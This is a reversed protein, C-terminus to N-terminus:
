VPTVCITASRKERMRRKKEGPTCLHCYACHIGNSCGKKYLFACPRCGASYHGESGVTPLAATGLQPGPVADALRLLPAHSPPPGVTPSPMEAGFVPAEAPPLVSPQQMHAGLIPAQAPPPSVALSQMQTALIPPQLPPPPVALIPARTNLRPAATNLLPPQSPPPPLLSITAGLTPAHMPPPSIVSPAKAGLFFFSQIPSNQTPSSVALAAQVSFVPPREPPPPLSQMPSKEPPSSVALAAAVNFVPPLAPPPPPFVPECTMKPLRFPSKVFDLVDVGGTMRPATPSGTSVADTELAKEATASALAWMSADNHDHKDLNMALAAPTAAELGPPARICSLRSSSLSVAEEKPSPSVAAPSQSSSSGQTSSPASGASTSRSRATTNKVEHPQAGVQAKALQSDMVM